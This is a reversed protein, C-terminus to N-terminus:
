KTPREGFIATGIRVITAGEESAIEFDNTMGMSLDGRTSGFYGDRQLTDRLERLRRFYPRTREADAFFPPLTM